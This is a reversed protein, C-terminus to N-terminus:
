LVPGSKGGSLSVFAGFNMIGTVKGEQLSGIEIAM